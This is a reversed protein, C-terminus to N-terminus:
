RKHYDSQSVDGEEMDEWPYKLKVLDLPRSPVKISILKEIKNADEEAVLEKLKQWAIAFKEPECLNMDTFYVIKDQLSMVSSLEEIMHVMQEPLMQRYSIFYIERLEDDTCLRQLEPMLVKEEYDLHELTEKLFDRLKLYLQYGAEQKVPSNNEKSIREFIARIESEIVKHHAHDTDAAIGMSSGRAILLKHIRTEEYDAHGELLMVLQEFMMKLKSFEKESAFDTIGCQQLLDHFRLLLYKHERYLRYRM